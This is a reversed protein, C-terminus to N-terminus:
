RSVRTRCIPCRQLVPDGGCGSRLPPRGLLLGASSGVIVLGIVAFSILFLTM